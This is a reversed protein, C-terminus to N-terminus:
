DCLEGGTGARIGTGRKKVVGKEKKSMSTLLRYVRDARGAIKRKEGTRGV